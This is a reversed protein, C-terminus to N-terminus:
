TMDFWRHGITCRLITWVILNHSFHYNEQIIMFTCLSPVVIYVLWISITNVVNRKFFPFFKARYFSFLSNSSFDTWNQFPMRLLLVLQLILTQWLKSPGISPSCDVSVLIHIQKSSRIQLLHISWTVLIQSFVPIIAKCFYHMGYIFHFTRIRAEITM